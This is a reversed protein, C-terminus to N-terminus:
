PVWTNFNVGLVWPSIEGGGTGFQELKSIYMYGYNGQDTIYCFYNGQAVAIGTHWSNISLCDEYSPVGGWAAWNTGGGGLQGVFHGPNPDSSNYEFYGMEYAGGSNDLDVGEQDGYYDYLDVYGSRVSPPLPADTPTPPAATPQPVPTNTPINIVAPTSTPIQDVLAPQTMDLQSLEESKPVCPLLKVTPFGSHTTKSQVSGEYSGAEGGQIWSSNGAMDQASMSFSLTYEQGAGTFPASSTIFANDFTASYTNGSGGNGMWQADLPSPMADVGDIFLRSLVERLTSDDRVTASITVERPSCSPDGYYIIQTSTKLNSVAPATLDEDASGGPNPINCASLLLLIVFASFFKNLKM